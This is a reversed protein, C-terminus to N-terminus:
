IHLMFKKIAPDITHCALGMGSEPHARPWFTHVTVGCYGVGIQAQLVHDRQEEAPSVGRISELKGEGATTAIIVESKKDVRGEFLVPRNAVVESM